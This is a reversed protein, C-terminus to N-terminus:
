IDRELEEGDPQLLLTTETKYFQHVVLCIMWIVSMAVFGVSQTAGAFLLNLFISFSLMTDLATIRTYKITVRGTHQSSGTNSLQTDVGQGPVPQCSVVEEEIKQDYQSKLINYSTM